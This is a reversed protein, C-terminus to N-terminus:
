SPFNPTLPLTLNGRVSNITDLIHRLSDVGSNDAEEEESGENDVYNLGSYASDNRVLEM